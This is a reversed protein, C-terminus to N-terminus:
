GKRDYGNQKLYNALKEKGRLLHSKVTNPKLGSIESVKEISQGEVLQLTICLRENESLIQLAKYLDMDLNSDGNEGMRGKVQPTDLDDTIKHRRCYDYWVNYAIRYLWTSFHSLGRFNRINLYAKIFTEQALDDSLPRNGLTQSLFFRRVSSQYKVVLRDFSRNDHLVAVKTVLSIDDFKKL